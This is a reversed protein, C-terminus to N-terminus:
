GWFDVTQRRINTMVLDDFQKIPGYSNKTSTKTVAHVLDLGKLQKNLTVVMQYGKEILDDVIDQIRELTWASEKYYGSDTEPYPPDLFLVHTDPSTHKLAEEYGRCIIRSTEPKVFLLDKCTQPIGDSEIKDGRENRAPGKNKDFSRGFTVSGYFVWASVYEASLNLGQGFVYEKLGDYEETTGRWEGLRRNLWQVLETTDNKALWQHYNLLREDVDSLVDAKLTTTYSVFGSGAFIEALRPRGSAVLLEEIQRELHFKRGAYRIM